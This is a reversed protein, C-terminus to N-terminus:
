LNTFHLPTVLPYNFVWCSRFQWHFKWYSMKHMLFPSQSGEGFIEDTPMRHKISQAPECWQTDCFWHHFLFFGSFFRSAEFKGGLPFLVTSLFACSSESFCTCNYIHHSKLFPVIWERSTEWSDPTLCFGMTATFISSHYPFHFMQVATASIWFM